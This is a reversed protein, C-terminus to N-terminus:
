RMQDLITKIKSEEEPALNVFMCGLHLQEGLLFSRISRTHRIELEAVEVTESGLDLVVDRVKRGKFLGKADRKACRMSVGSLSLDFVQLEFPSTGNMVFSATFSAGLPAEMRESSRRNLVECNEPFIMPIHQPKGPVSSWETNTLRFQLKAARVCAVFTVKGPQLAAGENLEMVFHPLQPDVSLIRGLVVERSGTAYMSIADGSESLFTLMDGIDDESTMLFPTAAAPIPAIADQPRPPGKRILGTLPENLQM